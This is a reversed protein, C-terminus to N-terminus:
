QNSIFEVFKQKEHLMLISSLTTYKSTDSCSSYAAKLFDLKEHLMLVEALEKIQAVSLCHKKIQLMTVKQKEHLMLENVTNQINRFDEASTFGACGNSKATNISSQKVIVNNSQKVVINSTPISTNHQIIDTGNLFNDKEPSQWDVIKLMYMKKGAKNKKTAKADLRLEYSTFTNTSNDYLSKSVFETNEADVIVKLKKVGMKMGKVEVYTSPNENVKKGDIVLWFEEGNESYIKLSCNDKSKFDYVNDEKNTSKTNETNTNNNETNEEVKPSPKTEETTNKTPKPNSGAQAEQPLKVSYPAFSVQRGYLLKVDLKKAKLAPVQDAYELIKDTLDEPKDKFTCNIKTYDTTSVIEFDGAFKEDAKIKERLDKLERYSGTSYFRLEYPAGNNVWEGIYSTFLGLLREADKQIVKSIGDRTGSGASGGNWDSEMVITGLGEATCNDYAKAEITVKSTERTGFAETKKGFHIKKILIIFQADSKLGLQQVYSVENNDEQYIKFAEQKMADFRSKDLYRYGKSALHENFREIAFEYNTKEQSTPIDAPNYAVMFRVGGMAKALIKFDAKMASTTVNAKVDVEYLGDTGNGESTITYNAIYGSTNTAIADRIVTFNEVKTESTLYAGAVQEIATRLADKIAEERKIGVGHAETEQVQAFLGTASVQLLVILFYTLTNKLM